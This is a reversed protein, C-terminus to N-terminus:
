SAQNGNRESNNDKITVNRKGFYIFVSHHRSDAIYICSSFVGRICALDLTVQALWIIVIFFWCWQLVVYPHQCMSDFSYLIVVSLLTYLILFVVSDVSIFLFVIIGSYTSLFELEKCCTWGWRIGPGYFLFMWYRFTCIWPRWFAVWHTHLIFPFTCM